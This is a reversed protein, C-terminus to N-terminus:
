KIYNLGEPNHQKMWEETYDTLEIQRKAKGIVKLIENYSLGAEHMKFIIQMLLNGWQDIDNSGTL